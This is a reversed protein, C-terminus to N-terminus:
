VTRKILYDFFLDTFRNCFAATTLFDIDRFENEVGKQYCWEKIISLPDHLAYKYQDSLVEINEAKLKFFKVDYLNKFWTEGEEVTERLSGLYNAIEDLVQKENKKNGILKDLALKLLLPKNYKNIKSFNEFFVKLKEIWEKRIIILKLVNYLSISSSNQGRYIQLNSYSIGVDEDYWYAAIGKPPNLNGTFNNQILIAALVNLIHITEEQNKENSKRKVQSSDSIGILFLTDVLVRIKDKFYFISAAANPEFNSNLQIHLSKEDEKMKGPPAELRFWPLFTIADVKLKYGDQKKLNVFESALMPVGGSGTGGFCSGVLIIHKEGGRLTDKMEQLDEDNKLIKYRISTAGISPRGYMGTRIPTLEADESFLCNFLEKRDGTLNGFLAGFNNSDADITPFPDILYRRPMKDLITKPINGRLKTLSKNLPTVKDSDVVYFPAPEFGALEALRLYAAIVTQGTGGVGILIPNTM